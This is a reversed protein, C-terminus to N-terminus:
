RGHGGHEGGGHEGGGGEGGGREGGFHEGGGREGGFHEGGREDGGRGEGRHQQWGAGWHERWHPAADGRWGHFYAPADLYYSVPVEMIYGPVDYAPVLDWPGDYGSSSYWENGDFVWYLNDYFFYNAGVQPAYYVPSGPVLEMRPRASLNIGINVAAFAPATIGLVVALVIASRRM